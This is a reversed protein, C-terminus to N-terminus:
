LSLVPSATHGPTPFKKAHDVEWLYCRPSQSPKLLSVTRGIYRPFKVGHCKDWESFLNIMMCVTIHWKLMTLNRWFIWMLCGIAWRNHHAIPHRKHTWGTISIRGWNRCHHTCYWTMNSLTVVASSQIDNIKLRVLLLYPLCFPINETHSHRSWLVKPQHHM